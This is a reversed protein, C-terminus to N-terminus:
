KGKCPTGVSVCQYKAGLKRCDHDTGTASDWKAWTEDYKKRVDIRWAWKAQEIAQAETAERRGYSSMPDNKCTYKALKEGSLVTSLTDKCPIATRKCVWREGKPTSVQKCDVARADAYRWSNFESGVKDAVARRWAFLSNQYAGLDRSLAPEGEAVIPDSKCERAMSADAFTLSTLFALGLACLMRTVRQSNM